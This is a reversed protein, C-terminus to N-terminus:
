NSTTNRLQKAILPTLLLFILGFLMLGGQRIDYDSAIRNWDFGLIATGLVIEFLVTLVVWIFGVALLSGVTKLDLWEILSYAIVLILISGIFVGIQRAKLDGIIPTLLLARQVGHITEMVIIVMWVAFVRLYLM